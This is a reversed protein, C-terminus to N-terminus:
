DYTELTTGHLIKELRARHRRTRVDGSYSWKRVIDINAEKSAHTGAIPSEAEGETSQVWYRDTNSASGGPIRSVPGDREDSIHLVQAGHTNISPLADPSNVTLVQSVNFEGRNVLNMAHLGGQSIGAVMIEAGPPKVRERLLKRIREDTKTDRLMYASPTEEWKMTDDTAQNTGAIYLMYRTEGDECRIKELRIGDDRDMKHVRDIVDSIENLERPKEEGSIRLGKTPGSVDAEAPYKLYQQRRYETIAIAGVLALVGLGILKKVGSPGFTFGVSLASIVAACVLVRLLAQVKKVVKVIAEKIKKLLNKVHDGVTDNMPSSRRIAGLEKAAKKAATDVRSVAGRVENSATDVNRQAEEAKGKYRYYTSREGAREVEDKSANYREAASNQAQVAAEKDGNAAEARRLARATTSRAEELVTAYTALTEGAGQCRTHAKDLEDAIMRAQERIKDIAKSKQDYSISRLNTAATKIAEATQTYGQAGKRVREPDGPVPDQSYGVLRWNGPRKNSM